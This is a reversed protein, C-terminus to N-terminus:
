KKRITLETLRAAIAWLQLSHYPTDISEGLMTVGTIIDNKCQVIFSKDEYSVANGLRKISRDLDYTMLWIQRLPTIQKNEFRVIDYYKLIRRIVPRYVQEHKAVLQSLKDYIKNVISWEVDWRLPIDFISLANKQYCKGKPNIYEFCKAKSEQEASYEAARVIPFKEKVLSLGGSISIEEEAFFAKCQKNIEQAFNLVRSWEGMIFLDDGGSYVIVTADKYSKHWMKDLERKFFLDLKRSMRAYHALANNRDYCKRLSNGLNDVDMRLVGLRDVGADSANDLLDAFSQVSAGIGALFERRYRIQVNPLEADNYIILSQDDSNDKINKIQSASLLYYAVGLGGPEVVALSELKMQPSAVLMYKVRGLVAGLEETVSNGWDDSESEQPEFLETYMEQMKGCLPTHKEINKQKHLASFVNPLNAGLEELTAVQYTLLVLNKKHAGFITEVIDRKFERFREEIGDAYPIMMCFTGGTSYLVSQRTVGFERMIREVVADQLLYLYFSRGRLQKLAHSSKVDFLYDQIGSLSGYVVLFKEANGLLLKHRLVDYACVGKGWSEPAAVDALYEEAITMITEPHQDKIGSIAKCFGDVKTHGIPYLAKLLSCIM